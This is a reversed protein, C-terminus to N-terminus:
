CVEDYRYFGETPDGLRYKCHIKTGATQIFMNCFQCPRTRLVRLLDRYKVVADLVRYHKDQEEKPLEDYDAPVLIYQKTGIFIDIVQGKEGYIAENWSNCSALMKIIPIDAYPSKM